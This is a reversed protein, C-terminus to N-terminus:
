SNFRYFFSKFIVKFGNENFRCMPDNDDKYMSLYTKLGSKFGNGTARLPYSKNSSDYGNELDWNSEKKINSGLLYEPPFSRIYFILEFKLHADILGKKEIFIKQICHTSHIVFEMM